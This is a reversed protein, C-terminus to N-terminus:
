TQPGDASPGAARADVPLQYTRRVSTGTERLDAGYVHISIATSSSANRVQHIDGPPAFGVATGAPNQTTGAWRLVPEAGTEALVFRVETELGQYVGAVCWAVHDHIPTAQGPEWVLVVVSFSGDDEAHVLHQRYRDSYGARYECPVLDPVTLFPELCRAVSRATEDAAVSRRSTERVEDILDRMGHRLSGETGRM